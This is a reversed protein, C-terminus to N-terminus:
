DSEIKKRKAEYYGARKKEAQRRAINARREARENKAQRQRDFFSGVASSAAAPLHEISAGALQKSIGVVMLIVWSFFLAVIILNVSILVIDVSSLKDSAESILNFLKKVTIDILVSVLLVVLTNAIILEIWRSFISKFWGFALTGIMIPSLLTLIKLTITSYVIPVIVVFGFLVLFIMTIIGFIIGIPHINTGPINFGTKEMVHFLKSGNYIINNAKQYPSIGGSAWQSLGNIADNILKLWYPSTIIVVIIAKIAGDLIIEKIPEESKGALVLYGKITVTMLLYVIITAKIGDVWPSIIDVKFESTLDNVYKGITIFINEIDDM